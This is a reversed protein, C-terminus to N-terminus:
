SFKQQRFHVPATGSNKQFFRSFYAPDDFGLAYGIEAITLNTYRLMRRAELLARDNLIESPSRDAIRKAAARLASESVGLAAAHDAISERLQFRAEVRERYRAVLAAAPSPTNGLAAADHADTARSFQVLLQLVAAEVAAAHARAAWSLERRLLSLQSDAFGSVEADLEMLRARTFLHGLDGHRLVLSEFFRSGMTTVWGVSDKEWKFGHIITAPVLMVAPAVFDHREDEVLMTGGGKQILFLQHLDAHSHARITWDAPRSRDKLREVHVFGDAVARHPEGYLYFTPVARTQMLQLISPVQSKDLLDRSHTM